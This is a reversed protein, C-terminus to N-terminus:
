SAWKFIPAEHAKIRGQMRAYSPQVSNMTSSLGSLIFNHLKALRQTYKLYKDWTVGRYLPSSCM